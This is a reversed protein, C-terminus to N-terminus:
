RLLLDRRRLRRVPLRPRRRDGGHRQGAPQPRHERDLRLVTCRLSFIGGDTAVLWYGGTAYDAAIGVVPKNLHQGGMSGFFPADGFAFIGGDSAVLWYGKGDQTPAIDVVPANLRQGGMSGFFGADGFTFTGGDAAVLWYGKGDPTAVIHTIPANLARGPWRATTSPTGM